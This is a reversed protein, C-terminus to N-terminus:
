HREGGLDGEAVGVFVGPVHADAGDELLGELEEFQHVHDDADGAFVGGADVLDEAAAGDDVVAVAVPPVGELGLLFFDFAQQNGERVVIRRARKFRFLGGGDEEFNAASRLAGYYFDCAVVGRLFFSKALCEGQSTSM